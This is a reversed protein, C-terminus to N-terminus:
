ALQSERVSQVNAKSQQGRHIGYRKRVRPVFTIPVDLLVSSHQRLMACLPFGDVGSSLDGLAVVAHEDNVTM